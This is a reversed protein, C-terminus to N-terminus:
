VRHELIWAQPDGKRSLMRMVVPFMADRIASGVPGTTKGSGNRRGQRVVREVRTRRLGEYAALAEPVVASRDLCRGLTVADEIAMSVGQGASPSVAHAADGLLVARGSRWVPVRRLDETNWPGLIEDTARIIETAPFADDAFLGLLYARWSEPTFDGPRVPRRSPPNAFWWTEGGPATVWGFFSRRGFAMRVLRDPATEVPRSTFGGANLLGVYAPEPGGPNLVARTRSRLGDAGILLGGEATTGDAFVATVRDPTETFGTLRRGHEIPIGRAAVEARLAAYLDGRRITTSTIGDPTPGGLPLVALRRGRGNSMEVTPTAFGAALVHAPDLDLASLAALGNVAVTLFAGREDSDAPRAEYVRPQWGIRHLALAAVPGAIGGGIVIAEKTM